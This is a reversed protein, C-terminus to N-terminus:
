VPVVVTRSVSKDEIVFYRDECEIIRNIRTPLAVMYM